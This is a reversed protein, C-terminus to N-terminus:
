AFGWFNMEVIEYLKLAPVEPEFELGWVPELKFILNTPTL